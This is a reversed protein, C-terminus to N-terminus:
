KIVPRVSRGLYKWDYASSTFGRYKIKNPQICLGYATSKDRETGSWYGGFDNKMAINSGSMGGAAPLFISAGNPGIVRYGSCGNIVESEWQCQTELETIESQTPLRWEGGWTAYAVDYGDSGAIDNIISGFTDCNDKDYSKKYRIEGWSYFYGSEYNRSAGVNCTAWKVSLGLDVYEHGNYKDRDDYYQEEFDDTAETENTSNNSDSKNSDTSQQGANVTPESHTAVAEKKIGYTKIFFWCAVGTFLIGLLWLIWTHYNDKPPKQEPSKKPKPTLKQTNISTKEDEHIPETAIPKDNDLLALFEKISHPRDEKWYNMSQKITHSIGPSLRNPINDIGGKGIATAQPPVVGMILYYLTAGLSYIDTEPSFNKVGGDQYQEIPAYGHSVGIPTTSTAEGSQADYHKSLGFDILMASNDKSRLMVNGPKIDLHMVKREHIYNLADAVQRIYRVATAENLTGRRKVVDNLSEGEIYDMVYYATGNEEFADHIPIINPHNLTAITQAEKIFKAKYRNMSEAFGDSSLSIVDSNGDRKYYDKPFFEKICVKRETLEHEALYTIGFGGRGISEIIRYKDGQLLTGSKLEMDPNNTNIISCLYDVYYYHGFLQLTIHLYRAKKVRNNCHAFFNRDKYTSFSHKKTHVISFYKNRTTCSINTRV